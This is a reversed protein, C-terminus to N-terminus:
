AYPVPQKAATPAYYGCSSMKKAALPLGRLLMVEDHDSASINLVPTLRSSFQKPRPHLNELGVPNGSPKSKFERPHPARSSIFIRDDRIPLLAITMRALRRGLSIRWVIIRLNRLKVERHRVKVGSM